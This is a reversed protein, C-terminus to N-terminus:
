GRKHRNKKNNRGKSTWVKELLIKVQEIDSTYVYFEQVTGPGSVVLKFGSGNEQIKYHVRGGSGSAAKNKIFGLAIKNVLDCNALAKISDVAPDIVTTHSGAFKAGAFTAMSM